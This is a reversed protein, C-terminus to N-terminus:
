PLVIFIIPIPISAWAWWSLSAWLSTRTTHSRALVLSPALVVNCENDIYCRSQLSPRGNGWNNYLWKEEISSIFWECEFQPMETKSPLMDLLRELDFDTAEHESWTIKLHKWFASHIRPVQTRWLYSDQGMIYPGVKM